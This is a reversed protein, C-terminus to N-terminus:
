HEVYLDIDIVAQIDNIFKICDREFYMAPTEENRVKIVIEFVYKMDYMKKLEILMEKKDQLIIMLKSLQDNIDLSEEYETSVTWCTDKKKYSKGKIDDGKIWSQTPTMELKETVVSPQLEDPFIIFEAKVNTKKVFM